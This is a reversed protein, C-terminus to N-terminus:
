CGANFENVFCLFDFLDFLGDQTCDAVSSQANFANVFCLFDFLDLLGNGDCDPACFPEVGFDALVVAVEDKEQLVIRLVVHGDLSGGSNGHVPDPSGPDALRVTRFVGPSIEISDGTVLVSQLGDAATWTWLGFRDDQGPKQLRMSFTIRGSDDIVAPVNNDFQSFVWGDEFGPAPQRERAITTVSQGDGTFLGSQIDFGIQTNSFFVTQGTDNVGSVMPGLFFEDPQGDTVPDGGRVIQVPGSEGFVCISQDEPYNVDPGSLWLLAAANGNHSVIAGTPFLRLFATGDPTPDGPLIVPELTDGSTKQWLGNDVNKPDTSAIFRVTGTDDITPTIMLVTFTEDTGPAPDGLAVLKQTQGDKWTWIGRQEKEGPFQSYGFVVGAGGGTMVEFDFWRAFVAGEPMGPAQDGKWVVLHLERDPTAIWVGGDNTDNIDTGALKTNFIFSGEDGGFFYYGFEKFYPHPPITPPLGPPEEGLYAIRSVEGDLWEFYGEVPLGEYAGQFTIRGSHTIQPGRTLGALIGGPVEMGKYAITTYTVDALASPAAISAALVARSSFRGLGLLRAPM